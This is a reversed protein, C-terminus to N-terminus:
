GSGPFLPGLLRVLDTRRRVGLKRMASALHTAVTSSAIGLHYAILKDAYGRIALAVVRTEMNTLGRPDRVQHPNAHALVYRRGDTDFHEVLSWTGDILGKWIDLAEAGRGKARSRATGMRRAGERLAELREKARGEAHVVTGDSDLVAGRPPAEVALPPAAGLSRRLRLGAQIHAHVQAYMAREASRLTRRSLLSGVFATAGHGDVHTSILTFQDVASTGLDHMWRPGITRRESAFLLTSPERIGTWLIKEFLAARTRVLFGAGPQQAKRLVDGIQTEVRAALEESADASEVVDGIHLGRATFDIHYACLGNEAAILGQIGECCAQLWAEDTCHLDYAAEVVSIVDRKRSRRSAEEDGM